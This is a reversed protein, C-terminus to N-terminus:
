DASGETRYRAGDDTQLEGLLWFFRECLNTIQLLSLKEKADLETTDSMYAKRIRQLASSRDGTMRSLLRKDYEDGDALVAQLTLLVTDLAEIVTETLESLSSEEFTADLTTALDYLTAEISRILRQHNLLSNLREYTAHVSNTRGLDELFELVQDSLTEFSEHLTVLSTRPNAGATRNRLVEFYRTFFSILRGQELVVLDLATEADSLAHDHIYRPRADDEAQTPPWFQELLAPVPTLLMLGAAAIINFFLYVYAMQREINASLNGVLSMMLPVGGYIELYFLPVLILSGIVGFAIQYMAIQRPRGRLGWSLLLTSAGSGFNTGYIMIVTQEVSFVGAHALTIALISIAASSQAILRLVTGVLFGIGYSTRTQELLTEVWSQQILPAAGTRLMSIGLFLMSLGFLAGTISQIGEAKKSAIGIGAIGIVFLMVIKINLTALFVLVSTGVNVGVIIPLAVKVTILGATLLSIITFVMVSTTQTVAGALFGWGVGMLSNGTGAILTQRFKRGALRKLNGTLFWMGAFFLGLGATVNALSYVM